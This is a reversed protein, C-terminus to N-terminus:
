PTRGAGHGGWRGLGLREKPGGRVLVTEVAGFAHPEPHEVGLAAIGLDAGLRDRELDAEVGPVGGVELGGVVGALDGKPFHLAKEAVVGLHLDFDGGPQEVFELEDETLRCRKVQGRGPM